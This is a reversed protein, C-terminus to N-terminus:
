ACPSRVLRAFPRLVFITERKRTELVRLVQIDERVRERFYCSLFLFEQTQRKEREATIDWFWDRSDQSLNLLTMM